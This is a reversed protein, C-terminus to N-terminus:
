TLNGKDLWTLARSFAMHRWKETYSKVGDAIHIDVIYRGEEVQRINASRGNAELVCQFM